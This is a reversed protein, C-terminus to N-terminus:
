RADLSAPRFDIGYIFIIYGGMLIEKRTWSDDIQQEFEHVHQRLENWIDGLHVRVRMKDVERYCSM